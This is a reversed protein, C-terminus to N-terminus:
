NKSIKLIEHDMQITANQIQGRPKIEVILPRLIEPKNWCGKNHLTNVNENQNQIESDASKSQISGM